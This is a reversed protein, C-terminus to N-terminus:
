SSRLEGRHLSQKILSMLEEDDNISSITIILYLVGGWFTGAVISQSGSLVISFLLSCFLPRVPLEFFAIGYFSSKIIFGICHASHRVFQVHGGSTDIWEELIPSKLSALGLISYRRFYYKWGDRDYAFNKINRGLSFKFLRM